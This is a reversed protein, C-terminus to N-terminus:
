QVSRYPDIPAVVVAQIRIHGPLGPVLLDDFNIQCSVVVRVSGGPVFDETESAVNVDTCSRVQNAVVPMAAALAASQADAASPVVSSAEAGARAAGVVQEHAIELRGLALALLAFM